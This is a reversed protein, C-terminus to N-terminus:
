YHSSYCCSFLKQLNETGTQKLTIVGAVVHVAVINSKLERKLTEIHALM